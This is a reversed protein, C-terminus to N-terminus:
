SCVPPLLLSFDKAEEALGDVCLKQTDAVDCLSILCRGCGGTPSWVLDSVIRAPPQLCRPLCAAILACLSSKPYNARARSLLICFRSLLTWVRCRCLRVCEGRACCVCVCPLCECVALPARGSGVSRGCRMLWGGGKVRPQM